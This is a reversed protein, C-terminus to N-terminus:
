RGGPQLVRLCSSGRLIFQRAFTAVNLVTAAALGKGAERFVRGLGGRALEDLIEFRNHSVRGFQEINAGQIEEGVTRAGSDPKTRMGSGPRSPSAGAARRVVDSPPALTDDALTENSVPVPRPAPGPGVGAITKETGTPPVAITVESGSPPSKARDSM